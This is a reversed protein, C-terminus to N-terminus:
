RHGPMILLAVAVGAAAAAIAVLAAVWWTFGLSGPVGGRERPEAPMPPWDEGPTWEEDGPEM